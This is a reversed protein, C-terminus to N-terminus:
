CHLTCCLPLTCHPKLSCTDERSTAKDLSLGRVITTTTPSEMASHSHWEKDYKVNKDTGSGDLLLYKVYRRIERSRFTFDYNSVLDFMSIYDLDQWLVPGIDKMHEELQLSLKKEDIGSLYKIIELQPPLKKMSKLKSVKGVGNVAQVWCRPHYYTTPKWALWDFPRNSVNSGSENQVLEQKLLQLLDRLSDARPLSGRPVSTTNTQGEGEMPIMNLDTISKSLDEVKREPEASKLIGADFKAGYEKVLRPIQGAAKLDLLTACIVSGTEFDWWKEIMAKDARDWSSMFSYDSLLFGFCADRCAQVNIESSRDLATRLLTHHNLCTLEWPGNSMIRSADGAKAPRPGPHFRTTPMRESVKTRTQRARAIALSSSAPSRLSQFGLEEALLFLRDVEEDEISYTETKSKRLRTISKECREQSRSIEQRSLGSAAFGDIDQYDIDKGFNEQCILLLCTLHFWHLVSNKTTSDNDGRSDQTDGSTYLKKLAPLVFQGKFEPTVAEPCHKMVFWVALTVFCAQDYSNDIKMLGRRSLCHKLRESPVGNAMSHQQKNADVPLIIKGSEVNAEILWILVKRIHRRLMKLYFIRVDDLPRVTDLLDPEFKRSRLFEHVKV